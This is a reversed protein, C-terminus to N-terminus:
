RAEVRCRNLYEDIAKQSFYLLRGIKYHEIKRNKCLKYIAHPTLNLMRVLYSSDFLHHEPLTQQAPM